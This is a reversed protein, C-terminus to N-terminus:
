IRLPVSFSIPAERPLRFLAAKEFLFRSAPLTVHPVSTLNLGTAWKLITLSDGTTTSPLLIHEAANDPEDVPESTADVAEAEEFVLEIVLDGTTWLSLFVAFWSILMVRYVTQRVMSALIASPIVGTRIVVVQEYADTKRHNSPLGQRPTWHCICEM